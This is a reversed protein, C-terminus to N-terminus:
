PVKSIAQLAPVLTNAENDNRTIANSKLPYDQVNTSKWIELFKIQANMQNVSLMKLNSLLVKSSITDSIKTGNLIRALKNQCNQIAALDQNHPLTGKLNFHANFNSVRIKSFETM